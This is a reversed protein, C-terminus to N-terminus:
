GDVKNIDFLDPNEVYTMGHADRLRESRHFVQFVAPTGAYARLDDPNAYNVAFPMHDSRMRQEIAEAVDAGLMTVVEVDVSPAYEYATWMEYVVYTNIPWATVLKRLRRTSKPLLLSASNVEPYILGEAMM